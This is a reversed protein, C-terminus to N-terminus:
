SSIEPFVDHLKELNDITEYGPKESESPQTLKPDRIQVVSWGREFAAKCNKPNDDVFYCQKVSTVGAENEAKEFMEPFPKCPWFGTLHDCYTIGEFHKEVGLIKVVRRAHTVYANTFLWLKVKTRDFRDLIDQLRQNPSLLKDLPLADDVEANYVVPDINHLKQLGIVTLGHDKWYQM